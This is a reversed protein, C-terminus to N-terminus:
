SKASHVTFHGKGSSPKVVCNQYLNKSINTSSIFIKNKHELRDPFIYGALVVKFIQAM